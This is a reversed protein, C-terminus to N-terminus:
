KKNKNNKSQKAREKEKLTREREKIVEERVSEIMADSVQEGREIRQKLRKKTERYIASEQMMLKPKLFVFVALGGCILLFVITAMATLTSTKQWWNLNKVVILYQGTGGNITLANGEVTVFREEFVDGNILFIRLRNPAVGNIDFTLSTNKAMSYGAPGVEIAKFYKYGKFKNMTKVVNKDFDEIHSVSLQQLRIGQPNHTTIKIDGGELSSTLTTPHITFTCKRETIPNYDETKRSTFTLEYVGPNVIGGVIELGNHKIILSDANGGFQYEPLLKGGTYVASCREDVKFYPRARKIWYRVTTNTLKYNTIDESLKAIAKFGSNADENPHVNLEGEVEVTVTEGDIGTDATATPWLLTGDFEFVLVDDWKVSIQKPTISWEFVDEEDVYYNSDSIGIVRAVYDGADKHSHDALTLTIDDSIVSIIEVGIEVVQGSYEYSSNGIYGIKLKQPTISCTNLTNGALVFGNYGSPLIAEVDYTNADVFQTSGTSVEKVELLVEIDEFCGYAIPVNNLGNYSFQVSDWRVTLPTAVIRWNFVKITDQSLCFYKNTLGEVELKYEGLDIASRVSDDSFILEVDRGYKQGSLICKPQILEGGYYYESQTDWIITLPSEVIEFDFYDVVLNYNKSIESKLEIKVRYEGIDFSTTNNFGGPTKVQYSIIVDDVQTGSLYADPDFLFYEITNNSPFSFEYNAKNITLEFDTTESNGGIEKICQIFYQGASFNSCDFSSGINDSKDGDVYWHYTAGDEHEATLIIEDGYTKIIEGPNNAGLTNINCLSNSIDDKVINKDESPMLYADGAAKTGNRYFNVNHINFVLLSSMIFLTIILIKKM